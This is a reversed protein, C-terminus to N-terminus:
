TNMTYTPQPATVALLCKEHSKLAFKVLFGHYTSQGVCLLMNRIFYSESLHFLSINIVKISPRSHLM